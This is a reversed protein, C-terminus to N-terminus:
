PKGGYGQCSNTNGKSWEKVANVLTGQRFSGHYLTVKTSKAGQAELDAAFRFFGGEPQGITNNSGQRYTLEARTSSTKAVTMLYVDRSTSVQAGSMRTQVSERNVCYNAQKDLSAVVADLNRPVVYVDKQIDPHSTFEARTKPFNMSCASLVAVSVAATAILTLKKM